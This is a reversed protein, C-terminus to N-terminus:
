SEDKRWKQELSEIDIKQLVAVHYIFWIYSVIVGAHIGSCCVDTNPHYIVKEIGDKLFIKKSVGGNVFCKQINCRPCTVKWSKSPSAPLSNAKDSCGLSLTTSQSGATKLKKTM